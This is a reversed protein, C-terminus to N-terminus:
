VLDDGIIKASEFKNQIFLNKVKNKINIEKCFMIIRAYVVVWQCYMLHYKEEEPNGFDNATKLRNYSSEAVEKESLSSNFGLEELIPFIIFHETLSKLQKLLNMALLDNEYAFLDCYGKLRLDLHLLEHIITEKMEESTLSKKVFINIQKDNIFFHGRITNSNKFIYELDVNFRLNKNNCKEIINDIESPFKFVSFDFDM